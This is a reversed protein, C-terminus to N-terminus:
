VSINLSHLKLSAMIKWHFLTSYKIIYKNIKNLLYM